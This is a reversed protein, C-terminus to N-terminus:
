RANEKLTGSLSLEKMKKKEEYMMGDALRFIENYDANEDQMKAHGWSISPKGIGEEDVEACREAVRREFDKTAQDDANKLLLVIEDGGIRAIFADNPAENIVIDAITVLLKDGYIHGRTDNIKKLNNVDGVVIMLPMNEKAVISKVEELYANRNKLGTLNDFIAIDEFYRLKEYSKTVEIIEVIDGFLRGQFGIQHTAFLYHHEKGDIETTIIEEDYPSVVGSCTDLVRQRYDTYLEKYMPEPLSIAKGGGKKNWDLIYGKLSVTIVITSLEAFVLDRSTVIVNSSNAIFFASFLTYLMILYAVANLLDSIYHSYASSIFVVSLVRAVAIASIAILLQYTSMRMHKPMQYFVNFCLLYCKIIIILFYIGEMLMILSVGAVQTNLIEFSPVLVRIVALVIVIVPLTIIKAWTAVTTRKYSVQSRIHFCLFAPILITTALMIVESWANLIPINAFIGLYIVMATWVLIPITLMTFYQSEISRKHKAYISRLLYIFTVCFLVGFLIQWALSGPRFQTVLMTFAQILNEKFM